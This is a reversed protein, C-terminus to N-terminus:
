IKEKTALIRDKLQPVTLAECGDMLNVCEDRTKNREYALYGEIIRHARLYHEPDISGIPLSDFIMRATDSISM